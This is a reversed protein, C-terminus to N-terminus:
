NQRKRAREEAARSREQAEQDDLNALEDSFEVDVGDSVQNKPTQRLPDNRKGNKHEDRGM